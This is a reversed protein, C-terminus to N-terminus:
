DSPFQEESPTARPPLIGTEVAQEPVRNGEPISLWTTASAMDFGHMFGDLSTTSVDGGVVKNQYVLLNLQVDEVSGPYNTIAYTYRRCRRGRQRSLDFGQQKQLYNYKEFVEDFERPILVDRIEIPEEEVQWGYSAIFALREEPTKARTSRRSLTVTDTPRMVGMQSSELVYGGLLVLGALLVGAFVRKKYMRFTLTIM